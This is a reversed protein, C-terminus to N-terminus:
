LVGVMGLFAHVKTLLQCPGWCELLALCNKDPVCGNPTCVHGLIKFTPTCLVLKHGSFTGGSYKMWQLVRNLLEFFEWLALCIDPNDSHKAPM